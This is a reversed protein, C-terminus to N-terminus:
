LADATQVLQALTEQKLRGGLVMTTLCTSGWRNKLDASLKDVPGVLAVDEVMELPIADSAEQKRGALYLEQVKACVDGWGMRVFVDNHFNVDKAGMGGAYLAIVPKIRSAAVEVDEHESVWVVGAVDFTDASRRAGPRSFGEALANRYFEDSKPSFWLPLWGDAIEAALAVNKPGEAGLYVPIDPRLPHVTSLLPKGLGAGREGNYPLQYHRGSYTVPAERAWVKRMIDVYERTRELPRPYPQGYWGEVVQPGSAGIGVIMRGSSLHDITLAAMAMATPTRASMQCVATGLRMAATRTGWCALTSIADSGYAEATWMSEVGVEEAEALYREINKPPRAGWYGVSLGIRM